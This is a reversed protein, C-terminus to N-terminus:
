KFNINLDLNIENRCVPCFSKGPPISIQASCHPCTINYSRQYLSNVAISEVQNTLDKQFRRMDSASNLNYKRAM